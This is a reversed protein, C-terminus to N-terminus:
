SGRKALARVWAYGVVLVSMSVMGAVAVEPTETHTLTEAMIALATMAVANETTKWGPKTEM